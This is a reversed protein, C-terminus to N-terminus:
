EAERRVFRWHWPEFELGHSNDEPYSLEFCYRHAHARLWAFADTGAFSRSVTPVQPSGIDIADGTHHESFGPPMSTRLIDAMTDGDAQRRRVILLQRRPSRYASLPVLHVGENRAAAQMFLWAQAAPPSMALVGREPDLEIPHLEAADPLIRLGRFLLRHEAIGLDENMARIEARYVGDPEPLPAVTCRDRALPATGPDRGSGEVPGASDAPRGAPVCNALAVALSVALLIRASREHIM